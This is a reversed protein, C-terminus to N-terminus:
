FQKQGGGGGVCVGKEYPYCKVHVGVGRGNQLGVFSPVRNTSLYIVGFAM